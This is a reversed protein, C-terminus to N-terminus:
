LLDNTNEEDFPLMESEHISEDPTKAVYWVM